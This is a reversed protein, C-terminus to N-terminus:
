LKKKGHLFEFKYEREIVPKRKRIRQNGIIGNQRRAIEARIEEIEPQSIPYSPVGQYLEEIRWTGSRGNEHMENLMWQPIGGEVECGM